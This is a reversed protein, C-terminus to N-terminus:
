LKANVIFKSSDIIYTPSVYTQNNDGLGFKYKAGFYYSQFVFKSCYNVDIKHTASTISYSKVKNLNNKAWTGALFRNGSSTNPRYVGVTNNNFRDVFNSISNVQTVDSWKVVDYVKYDPGVIGVHGVYYTDWGSFMKTGIIDGVQVTTSTGPYKPAGSGTNSDAFTSFDDAYSSFPFLLIIIFAFFFGLFIKKM